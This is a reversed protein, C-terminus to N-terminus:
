INTLLNNRHIGYMCNIRRLQTLFYKEERHINDDYVGKESMESYLAEKRLICLNPSIAKLSPIIAIFLITVATSWVNHSILGHFNIIAVAAPTM